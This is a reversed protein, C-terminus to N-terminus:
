EGMGIHIDSTCPSLKRQQNRCQTVVKFICHLAQVGVAPGFWNLHVTDTLQSTNTETPFMSNTHMSNTHGRSCPFQVVHMGVQMAELGGWDQHTVAHPSGREAIAGGMCRGHVAWAPLQTGENYAIIPEM